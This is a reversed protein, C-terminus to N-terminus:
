CLVSSSILYCQSSRTCCPQRRNLFVRWMLSLDLASIIVPIFILVYVITGIIASLSTDKLYISLGMRAALRETGISALFNTVIDRVLRAVLWGILVILAAAFLKPIFSLVSQIM